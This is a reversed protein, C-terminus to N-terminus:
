TLAQIIQTLHLGTKWWTFYIGHLHQRVIGFNWDYASHSNGCESTINWQLMTLFDTTRLMLHSGWSHTTNCYSSWSRFSPMNLFFLFLFMVALSSFGQLDTVQPRNFPCFMIQNASLQHKKKSFNVYSGSTQFIQICKSKCCQLSLCHESSLLM